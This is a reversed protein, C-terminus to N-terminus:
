IPPLKKGPNFLGKPDFLAKISRQLTAETPSFQRDFQGRKVWGLGHEGSVSGGLTLVGAFLAEAAEYARALQEKSSPDIMFTAHLNGDGAHGWSSTRLGERAGIQNLLALAEGIRDFPVAVDESMKGGLQASVAFAIGSRWRWLPRAEAPTALTRLDLSGPGL